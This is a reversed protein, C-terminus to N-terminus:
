NSTELKKNSVAPVDDWKLAVIDFETASRKMILIDEGPKMQMLKSYVEKRTAM